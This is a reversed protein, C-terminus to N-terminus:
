TCLETRRVCAEIDLTPRCVKPGSTPTPIGWFNQMFKNTEECAEDPRGVCWPYVWEDLLMRQRSPPWSKGRLFGLFKMNKHTADNRQPM